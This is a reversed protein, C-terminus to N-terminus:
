PGPSEGVPLELEVRGSYEFRGPGEVPAVNDGVHRM